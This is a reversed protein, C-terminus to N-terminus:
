WWVVIQGGGGSRREEERVVDEGAKARCDAGTQVARESRCGDKRGALIQSVEGAGPWFIERVVVWKRQATRSAGNRRVPEHRRSLEVNCPRM